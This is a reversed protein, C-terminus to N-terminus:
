RRNTAMLFQFSGWMLITEADADMRKLSHRYKKKRLKVPPSVDEDWSDTDYLHIVVHQTNVVPDSNYTGTHTIGPPSSESIKEILAPDASKDTNRLLWSLSMASTDLIATRTHDTYIVLHLEKDEGVFVHDDKTVNFELAM